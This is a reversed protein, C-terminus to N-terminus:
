GRSSPMKHLRSPSKARSKRVGLLQRVYPAAEATPLKLRFCGEDDGDQMLTWGLSQARRKVAGWRRSSSLAVYLSYSKHDFSELHSHKGPISWQGCSNRRLRRTSIGLAKACTELLSKDALLTFITPYPTGIGAIRNTIKRHHYTTM